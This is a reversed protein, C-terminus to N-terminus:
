CSFSHATYELFLNCSIWLGLYEWFQLYSLKLSYSSLLLYFLACVCPDLHISGQTNYLSDKVKDLSGHPSLPTVNDSTHQPPTVQSHQSSHTLLSLFPPLLLAQALLTASPFLSIWFIDLLCCWFVQHSLPKSSHPLPSDMLIGRNRTQVVSLHFAKATVSIPVVPSPVSNPCIIHIKIHSM